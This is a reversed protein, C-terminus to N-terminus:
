VPYPEPTVTYTRGHPLTWTMVGPQPQELRWGTAQKARHHRRCLPALNCECTIGGRDYPVTHDLDCRYAARRCGPASCTPQRIQILHRLSGPPVYGEARRSHGCPGTELWALKGRLGAVWRITEPPPTFPRGGCTQGPPAPGGANAANKSPPPAPGHRTCAHAVPQGAPDTFTLCWRHPNMQDALARCTAADAPGHGAVEGASDTLGLWTGIPMTLNISGTLKPWGRDALDDGPGRDESSYAPRTGNASDPAGDCGACGSHPAGEGQGSRGDAGTRAGPAKPPLLSEVRRGALLASFVAARLQDITGIAGCESLWAALRTLRQNAAVVEHLPLERGALAGNGSGETWAQVQTDDRAQTKRKEAAEPDANLVARQLAARLQGSTQGSARPLLKGAIDQAQEDDIDALLDTFVQAKAWDIGGRSLAALVDPLRNLGASVTLLRSASMRTLTMAAAVEDDVHEALTPNNQQASQAQRRKTLATVAAAQGAMAWAALRQWGLLVGILESEGLQQYGDQTASATATALFPGGPTSDLVGGAAFGVGYQGPERHTFGPPLFEGAGTYPGAEYAARVDPPLSALWAAQEADAGPQEDLWWGPPEPLGDPDDPVEGCDAPHVLRWGEPAEDLSPDEAADDDCLWPDTLLPDDDSIWPDFLVPADEVVTAVRDGATSGAPELEEAPFLCEDRGTTLPQWATSRSRSPQSGSPQSRSSKSRSPQSRSSKSRSPQSRSSKSRSLRSHTPHAPQPPASLSSSPRLVTPQARRPPASVSDLSDSM